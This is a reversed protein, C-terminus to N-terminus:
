FPIDDDHKASESAKFNAQAERLASTWTDEKWSCGWMLYTNTQSDGAKLRHRLVTEISSPMEVSLNHLHDSFYEFIYAREEKSNSWLKNAIAKVMEDKLVMHHFIGTAWTALAGGKCKGTEMYYRGDHIARILKHETRLRATENIEPWLDHPFSGLITRVTGDEETTKLDDSLVDCVQQMEEPSFNSFLAQLFHRIYEPRWREIQRYVDLFVDMRHRAPIESVLLEAYRAQPVFDADLVRELFDVRSFQAKAKDIQNIIYGVFAILTQADSENDGIKDHSRPNRVAQYLGRLLQETGKQINWESDTQLRNLKIKPAAGGLAQGILAYGDGEAGSKTRLLESLFYFSDLIAATYSRKEYNVRVAEWLPEPVRTELNM